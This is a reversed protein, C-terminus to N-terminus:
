HEKEGMINICNLSKVKLNHAEVGCLRGRFMWTAMWGDMWDLLIWDWFFDM